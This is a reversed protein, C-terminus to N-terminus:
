EIRVFDNGPVLVVGVKATQLLLLLQNPCPKLSRLSSAIGAWATTFGTIERGRPNKLSM